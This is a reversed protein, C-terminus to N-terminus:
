EFGSVNTVVSGLALTSFTRRGAWSHREAPHSRSRVLCKLIFGWSNCEQRYAETLTTAGPLAGFAAPSKFESMLRQEVRSWGSKAGMQPTTGHLAVPHLPGRHRLVAESRSKSESASERLITTRPTRGKSRHLTMRHSTHTIGCPTVIHM